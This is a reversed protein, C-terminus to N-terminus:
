RPMRSRHWAELMEPKRRYCIGAHLSASICCRIPSRLVDMRAGVQPAAIQMSASLLHAAIVLLPAFGSVYLLMWLLERTLLMALFDCIARVARNHHHTAGTASAGGAAAADKPLGNAAKFFIQFASQPKSDTGASEQPM